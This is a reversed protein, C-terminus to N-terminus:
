MVIFAPQVVSEFLGLLFRVVMLSPFNNAAASCAVVAGWCGVNFALYKGVPLKQILINTPYEGVLAGMYLVTGVWNFKNGELGADPIIGMISAFGMTGKDLTQCFYTGLMFPLVHKNIAWFLRKNTEDDIVVAERAAYAATQQPNRASKNSFGLSARRSFFECYFPSQPSPGHVCRATSAM